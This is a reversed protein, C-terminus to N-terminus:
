IEKKLSLHKQFEKLSYKKKVCLMKEEILPLHIQTEQLLFWLDYVDRAKTRTMIVGVKEALIEEKAMVVVEFLPLERLLRGIMILKPELVVKDRLSFDLEIKCLSQRGGNYLPDM